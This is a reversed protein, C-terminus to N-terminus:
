NSLIAAPPFQTLGYFLSALSSRPSSNGVKELVLGSFTPWGRDLCCTSPSGGAQLVSAAWPEPPVSISIGWGGARTPQKDLRSADHNCLPELIM